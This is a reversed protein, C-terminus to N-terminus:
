NGSCVPQPTPRVICSQIAPNCGPTVPPLPRPVKDADINSNQTSMLFETLIQVPINLGGTIIGIGIAIGVESPSGGGIYSIGGSVIGGILPLYWLTGYPDNYKLTANGVYRYLNTDQGKFGIPDESIFRGSRPDYHIDRHKEDFNMNNFNIAQFM